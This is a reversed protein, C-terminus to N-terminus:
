RGILTISFKVENCDFGTKYFGDKTKFMPDDNIFDQEPYDYKALLFKDSNQDDHKLLSKLNEPEQDISIELIFLYLTIFTKSLTIITNGLEGNNINNRHNESRQTKGIPKGDPSYNEHGNVDNVNRM